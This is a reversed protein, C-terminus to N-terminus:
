DSNLRVARILPEDAEDFILPVIRWQVQRARRLSVYAASLGAACGLLVLPHLLRMEFYAIGPIVIGLLFLYAGALQWFNRRGPVYSCTFPIKHWGTLRLEILLFVLAAVLAIHALAAPWGVVLVEVPLTALLVPVLGCFILLREVSNLMEVRGLSEAQRFIWNAKIETPLQFVYCLTSMLITGMLLPIALISQLQWPQWPESSSRHWMIPGATQLALIVALALGCTAVLKHRRSGGLTQLAFVFAARERCSKIFAESLQAARERRWRGSRKAVAQELARSAYRRYSLCYTTVVLLLVAGLGILARESLALLYADRTGLLTEYLGLFWAPPFNWMWGPSGAITQHWNPIDLAYLGAVLFGGALVTQFWVSLREFLRPPLVNMLVGQFAIVAFHVFLGAGCTAVAHAVVYQVGFPPVQWRGSTIWPLLVSTAFNLDVIIMGVIVFSSLFRAVFVEYLRVPLPKLALYDQRSPFLSQWQLISTLGAAVMSLSIFFLRDARVAALYLDGTDRSQLYGYKPVYLRVILPGVCGLGCLLTIVLRQVQESSVLENVLQQSLFHRLLEFQSGRTEALWRQLKPPGM